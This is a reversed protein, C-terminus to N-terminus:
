PTFAYEQSGKRNNYSLRAELLCGSLQFHPLTMIIHTMADLYKRRIRFYLYPYNLTSVHYNSQPMSKIFQRTWESTRQGEILANDKNPDHYLWLRDSSCQIGPQFIDQSPCRDMVPFRVYENIHLSYNITVLEGVPMSQSSPPFWFPMLFGIYVHSFISSPRM